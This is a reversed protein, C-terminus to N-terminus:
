RISNTFEKFKEMKAQLELGIRANDEVRKQTLEMNKKAEEDKQVAAALKLQAEKVLRSTEEEKFQIHKKREEMSKEFADLFLAKEGRIKSLEKGLEAIEKEIKVKAKELNLHEDFVGNIANVASSCSKQVDILKQKLNESKETQM